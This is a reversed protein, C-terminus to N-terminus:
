LRGPLRQAGSDGKGFAQPARVFVCSQCPMDDLIDHEITLGDTQVSGQTHARALIVSACPHHPVSTIGRPRPAPATQQPQAHSELQHAAWGRIPRVGRFRGCSKGIIRYGTLDLRRLGRGGGIHKVSVV